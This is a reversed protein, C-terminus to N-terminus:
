NKPLPLKVFDARCVVRHIHEDIKIFIRGDNTWVNRPGYKQAAEQRLSSRATTLDEFLVLGTSKLLKRNRFLMARTNYDVFKIILPRPKGGRQQGLRHARDIAEPRINLGLKEKCLKLIAEDVGVGADSEPLGYLRLNNRRSYQELNDMATRLCENEKEIADMRANVATVKEELKNIVTELSNKVKISVKDSFRDLFMESFLIDQIDAGLKEDAKNAARTMKKDTM